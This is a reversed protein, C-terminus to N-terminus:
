SHQAVWKIANVFELDQTYPVDENPVQTEIRLIPASSFGLERMRDINTEISYEIKKQDLKTKLVNCKPCNTSFLTIKEKM